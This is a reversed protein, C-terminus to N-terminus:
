SGGAPATSTTCGGLASRLALCSCRVVSTIKSIPGSVDEGDLFIAADLIGAVIGVIFAFLVWFWFESRLARGSFNVYNRFGATIAEGFNM